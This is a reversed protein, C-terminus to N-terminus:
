ALGPMSALAQAEPITVITALSTMTVMVAAFAALTHSTLRTM